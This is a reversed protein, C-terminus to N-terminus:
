KNYKKQVLEQFCYKWFYELKALLWVNKQADTSNMDYLPWQKLIHMIAHKLQVGPNYTKWCFTASNLDFPPPSLRSKSSSSSDKGDLCYENSTDRCICSSFDPPSNPVELQLEDELPKDPM